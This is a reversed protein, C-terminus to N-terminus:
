PRPLMGAVVKYCRGEQPASLAVVVLAPDFGLVQALAAGALRPWEGSAVAQCLRRDAVPLDHDTGSWAFRCRVPGDGRGEVIPAAQPPVLALSPRDGPVTWYPAASGPFGFPQEEPPHVLPALLRRVRRGRMRGAPNPASAFVVAEPQTPDPGDPDQGIVARVIEFPQLPRELDGSYTGRVLAGSSVDVAACGEPGDALVLLSLTTGPEAARTRHVVQM